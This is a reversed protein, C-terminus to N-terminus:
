SKLNFKLQITKPESKIIHLRKGHFNLRVGLFVIGLFFLQLWFSNTFYYATISIPILIVGLKGTLKDTITKKIQDM